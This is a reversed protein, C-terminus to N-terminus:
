FHYSRPSISDCSVRFTNLCKHLVAIYVERFSINLYMCTQEEGINVYLTESIGGNPVRCLYRGTRSPHGVRFLLIEGQSTSREIFMSSPWWTGNYSPIAEGNPFYWNGM